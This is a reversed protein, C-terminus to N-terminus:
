EEEFESESGFLETAGLTVVNAGAEPGESLFVDDGQISDVVIAQRVFVLPEVNVYVWTVGSPDYLLAAYPVVLQEAGDVQEARVQATELGLREAAKESLTLRNLDTGAIPDLKVPKAEEGTVPIQAGCASLSLVLLVALLISLSINLKMIKEKFIVKL